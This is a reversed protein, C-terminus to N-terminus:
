KKGQKPIARWHNLPCKVAGPVILSAGDVPRDAPVIRANRGERQSM